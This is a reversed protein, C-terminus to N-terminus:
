KYICINTYVNALALDEVMKKEGIATKLYMKLIKLVSSTREAPTACYANRRLSYRSCRSLTHLVNKINSSM